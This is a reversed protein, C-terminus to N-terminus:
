AGKIAVVLGVWAAGEPGLIPTVDPVAIAGVSVAALASNFLLTKSHAFAALKKM